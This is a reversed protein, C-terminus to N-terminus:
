YEILHTKQRVKILKIGLSELKKALLRDVTGVKAKHEAALEEIAADANKGSELIRVKWKELLVLAMKAAEKDKGKEASKALGKLENIVPSPVALENKKGELADAIRYKMLYILFNTDLIIM